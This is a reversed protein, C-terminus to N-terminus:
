PAGDGSTSAQRKGSGAPSPFFSPKRGRGAKILLGALGGRQYAHLWAYVTDEQRSKLLGHLAVQRGSVGTAVKLIAAARERVYPRAAHDRAEELEGQQAPTLVIRLPPAM